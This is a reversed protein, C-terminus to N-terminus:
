RCFLGSENRLVHKHTHALQNFRQITQNRRTKKKQINTRQLLSDSILQKQRQNEKERAIQEYIANKEFKRQKQANSMKFVIPFSTTDMNWHAVNYSECMSLKTCKPGHSKCM